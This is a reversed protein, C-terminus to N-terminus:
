ARPPYQPVAGIASRGQAPTPRLWSARVPLVSRVEVLGPAQALVHAACHDACLHGPAHHDWRHDQVVAPPVGAAMEVADPERELVHQPASVIVTLVALLAAVVALGRSLAGKPGPRATAPLHAAAAM